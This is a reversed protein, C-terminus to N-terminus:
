SEAPIQFWIDGAKLGAPQTNQVYVDPKADLATKDAASMLGHASTTADSYETNHDDVWQATGDAAWGLIKGASGGSPIHKNGATTPHVYNNANAEIGSLKNKETNTYDNTSLGKGEVKDVKNDVVADVYTTTPTNSLVTSLRQNGVQVADADVAPFNGFPQLQDIIPISM